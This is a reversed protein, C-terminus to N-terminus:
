SLQKREESEQLGEGKDANNRSNALHNQSEFEVKFNFSRLRSALTVAVSTVLVLLAALLALLMVKTERYGKLYWETANGLM